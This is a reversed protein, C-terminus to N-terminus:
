ALDGFPDKSMYEIIMDDSEDEQLLLPWHRAVLPGEARSRAHLRAGWHAPTAGPCGSGRQLRWPRCAQGPGGHGRAQAPGRGLVGAVGTAMGRACTLRGRRHRDAGPGRGRLPRGRREGVGEGCGTTM